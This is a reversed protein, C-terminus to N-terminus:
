RFRYNIKDDVGNSEEILEFIESIKKVLDSRANPAECGLKFPITPRTYFNNM